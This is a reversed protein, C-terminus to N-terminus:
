DYGFGFEDVFWLGDVGVVYDVVVFMGVVVWFFDGGVVFVDVFDFCCVVEGDDEVEIVVVGFLGVM